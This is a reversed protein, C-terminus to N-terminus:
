GNQIPQDGTVLDIISLRRMGLGSTSSLYRGSADPGRHVMKDTMADVGAEIGDIPDGYIVGCIGCM